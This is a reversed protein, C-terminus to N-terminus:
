SRRGTIEDLKEQADEPSLGRLRPDMRKAADLSIVRAQRGSGIGPRRVPDPRPVKAESRSQIFSWSFNRVEDILLAILNELNSWAAFEPHSESAHLEDEPIMNRIATMVASEPPLQEVLVLLRRWTLGSGPEFLDRFDTRYYRQLDAEVEEPFSRTLWVAKATKGDVDPGPPRV